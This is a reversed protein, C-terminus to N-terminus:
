RKKTIIKTKECFSYYKVYIQSIIQLTLKNDQWTCTTNYLEKSLDRPRSVKERSNINQM